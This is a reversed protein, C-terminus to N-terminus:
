TRPARPCGSSSPACPTAPTSPSGPARSACPPSWTPTGGSLGGPPLSGALVIWDATAARRRLAETLGIMVEETIEPGPSNLKTTTGDPETITINVRTM